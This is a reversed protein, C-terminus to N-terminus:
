EPKDAIFTYLRGPRRDLVALISRSIQFGIESFAMRAFWAAGLWHSFRALFLEHLQHPTFLTFNTTSDCPGLVRRTAFGAARPRAEYGKRQFANEGGYLGHLRLRRLRNVLVPPLIKTLANRYKM